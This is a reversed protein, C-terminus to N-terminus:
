RTKGLSELYAILDLFEANTLSATLDSPMMSLPSTELTDIDSKVIREERIASTRLTISYEDERLIAGSHFDRDKM